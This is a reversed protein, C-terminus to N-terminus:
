HKYYYTKHVKERHENGTHKKTHRNTQWVTIIYHNMTANKTTKILIYTNYLYYDQIIM